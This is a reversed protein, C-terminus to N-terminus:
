ISGVKVDFSVKVEDKIKLAGLFASFPKIGYDTQRVTGEGTVHYGAGDPEVTVDLRLPRPQGFITLQGDVAAATPPTPSSVGGVSTSEFVIEPHKSTRLMKEHTTKEIEARDSDTLAKAGGTGERVKLSPSKAVVRVSCGAPNEPTMTVTGRWDRVEIRLDHGMKGAVGARTTYVSLTGNDPGVEFTGATM